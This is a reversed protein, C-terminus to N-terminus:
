HLGRKSRVHLCIATRHVRQIAPQARVNRGTADTAVAAAPATPATAPAALSAPAALCVRHAVNPYIGADNSVNRGTHRRVHQRLHGFEVNSAAVLVFPPQRRLALRLPGSLVHRLDQMDVRVLVALSRWHLGRRSRVHRCIAARHVRQIASQGRVGRTTVSAATHHAAVLRTNGARTSSRKPLVRRDRHWVNRLAPRSAM